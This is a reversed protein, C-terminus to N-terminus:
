GPIAIVQGVPVVMGCETKLSRALWEAYRVVQKLPETDNSFRPWTISKGDFTVEVKGSEKDTPKGRTKTEIM